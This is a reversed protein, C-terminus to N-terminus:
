RVKDDDFMATVFDRPVLSQRDEWNSDARRMADLAAPQIAALVSKFTAATPSTATPSALLADDHKALTIIIFGSVSSDSDGHGDYSFRVKDINIELSTKLQSREGTDKNVGSGAGLEVGGVGSVGAHLAAKGEWNSHDEHGVDRHESMATNARVTKCQLTAKGRKVVHTRADVSIISLGLPAPWELEGATSKGPGAQDVDYAEQNAELQPRARIPNPKLAAVGDDNKSPGCGRGKGM